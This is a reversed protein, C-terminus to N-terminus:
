AWVKCGETCNTCIEVQDRGKLLQQRFQQYAAGKWIASFSHQRLDGLQHSADKDFCCPVVMGDWTIVCAHWLKWCHNLLKNKVKWTGSDTQEYRSYQKLTPILENGQEYDYVQATKLKVEDVGIEKALAKVTDIQHENPKVVLMQFVIHPTASRAERKAAVLNRAGQLVKDLEGEKRYQEYVDQTAGDVSILIRDLGSAVTKRANEPHLFHGNTSTITYIGKEHAYRVMDLFKPNIYPEGQFYFILWTLRRHMDDILKRFFDEKMNGTERTFSRLGSPCEPCRLNCATTPEVSITMPTGWQLPKGRWKTLQYSAYIAAMNYVKAATLKSLFRRTDALYIKM